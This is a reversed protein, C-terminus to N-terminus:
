NYLLKKWKCRKAKEREKLWEVASLNTKTVPPPTKMINKLGQTPLILTCHVLEVGEGGEGDEALDGLSKVKDMLGIMASLERFWSLPINLAVQLFEKEKLNFLATFIQNTSRNFHDAIRKIQITCSLSKDEASMCALKLWLLKEDSSLESHTVVYDVEESTIFVNHSSKRARRIINTALGASTM